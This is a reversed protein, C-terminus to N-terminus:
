AAAKFAVVALVILAALAVFAGAMVDAMSVDLWMSLAVFGGVLALLILPFLFGLAFGM